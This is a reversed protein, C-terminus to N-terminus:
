SSKEGPAGESVVKLASHLITQTSTPFCVIPHSEPGREPDEKWRLSGKESSGWGIVIGTQELFAYRAVHIPAKFRVLDGVKM